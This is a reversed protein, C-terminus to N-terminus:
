SNMRRYPRHPRLPTSLTREHSWGNRLRGDILHESVGLAEAWEAICLTRGRFTIRHNSRKNRANQSRTAWYCNGPEYNGDNNRREIQLGAPPQGMDLIFNEFSRRWRSCVTIGRGGYYRFGECNPNECRSIMDAWHRYGRSHSMGHTTNRATTAESHLCGCSRTHGTRLNGGNVVSANGCNCRCRWLHESERKGVFRLVTLRGFRQGTLEIRKRGRPM